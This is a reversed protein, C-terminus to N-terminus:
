SFEGPSEFDGPSHYKAEVYRQFKLYAIDRTGGTQGSITFQKNNKM